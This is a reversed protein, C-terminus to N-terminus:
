AHVTYEAATIDDAHCPLRMGAEQKAEQKERRPLIPPLTMVLSSERAAIPQSRRILSVM